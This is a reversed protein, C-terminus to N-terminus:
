DGGGCGGGGGSSGAGSSSASDASGSGSWDDGPSDGADPRRLALQDAFAPDSAWLASTGYIGIGLAAGRPGYVTWDPRMAPALGHQEARLTALTRDGARSRRPARVLLLVALVAVVALMTPVWGVPQADSMGALVRLLGVVGVVVMWLGVRRIRGRQEDSLLLGARVLRQHSADLATCVSHHTILRNRHVGSAAARHVARELEDVDPDLRGAAQVVGRRSTITGRLHMAGLASYGALTAGSNLYALDHPHGQLDPQTVPGRPDALQRRASRILVLVVVAVVAYVPLFAGNSIGWTGATHVM